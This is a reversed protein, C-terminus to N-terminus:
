FCLLDPDSGYWLQTQIRIRDMYCSPGSGSGIWIVAQDLDLDSGYLLQTQIRIRDMDCSPRSGSGIWIVAPDLDSGYGLQTQISTLSETKLESGNEEWVFASLSCKDSSVNISGSWVRGSVKRRSVLFTEESASLGLVSLWHGSMWVPSREMKWAFTVNKNLLEIELIAM